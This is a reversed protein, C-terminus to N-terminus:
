RIDTLETKATIGDELGSMRRLVNEFADLTCAFAVFELGQADASAWPMSSRVMFAPPTYGEQVTRKM